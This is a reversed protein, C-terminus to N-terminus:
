GTCSEADCYAKRKTTTTIMMMMLLLLLMLATDVDGSCEGSGGDGEHVKWKTVMVMDMKQTWWMWRNHGGCGGTISHTGCGGIIDM